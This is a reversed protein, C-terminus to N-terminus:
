FFVCLSNNKNTNLERSRDRNMSTFSIFSVAPWYMAVIENKPCGARAELNSRAELTHNSEPKERHSKKSTSLTVLSILSFLLSSVLM